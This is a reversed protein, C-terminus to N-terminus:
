IGCAAPPVQCTTETLGQWKWVQSLHGSRLESQMSEHARQLMGEVTFYDKGHLGMSIRSFMRDLQNHTHGVLLLVVNICCMPTDSLACLLWMIFWM